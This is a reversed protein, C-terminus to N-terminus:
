SGSGWEDVLAKLREATAHPPARALQGDVYIPGEDDVV